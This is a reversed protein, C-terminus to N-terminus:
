EEEESRRLLIEIDFVENGERTRHPGNLAAETFMESGDIANKFQYVLEVAMATGSIKVGEGKRYSFSALDIGEPLIASIERLYELPSDRKDMYRKVLVVRRRLDRVEMSPATLSEAEGRLGALVAQRYMLAGIGSGVALLWVGFLVAAATLMRKRFQQALGATRWTEPVLNVAGGDFVRRAAGESLPVLSDLAGLEVSAPMREGIRRRLLEGRGETAWVGISNLVSPGQELELTMLSYEIEDAVETALEDEGGPKMVGVARFLVPAGDDFVIIETEEDSIVVVPYRGEEPVKGGDKLIRSWILASVDLRRPRVGVAEVEATLSDVTRREAAAILVLLESEGCRVVEHAFVLNELPFPSFKDLQLQVMGFIEDDPVVPLSVSRLLVKASPLALAVSGKLHAKAAKLAEVREAAEEDEGSEVAPAPLPVVGGDLREFGSKSRRVSTWKLERETLVVGTATDKAM